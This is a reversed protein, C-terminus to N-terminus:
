DVVEIRRGTYVYTTRRIKFTEGKKLSEVDIVQENYFINGKTQSVIDLYNQNISGTLGCPMISVPVDLRDLLEIDKVASFNDAILLVGTAKVDKRLAYLIAELDNEPYDGGNGNQMATRISTSFESVFTTFYIGGTAGIVKENDNTEDGDNFATFSTFPLKESHENLWYSAAIIHNAMSGTVDMVVALNQHTPIKEFSKYVPTVIIDEASVKTSQTHDPSGDSEVDSLKHELVPPKGNKLFQGKLHPSYSVRWEFDVTDKVTKGDVTKATWIPMDAIASNISKEVSKGYPEKFTSITPRGKEDVVVTFKAWFDKRDKWVEAPLKFNTQIHELLAQDGGEFDAEEIENPKAISVVKSKLSTGVPDEDVLRAGMSPNEFYNSITEFERKRGEDTPLPRHVLIFGHFYADGDTHVSLGTQEIIEWEILPSEFLVPYLTKLQEFRERDLIKQDFNISRKYATYVYYVKTVALVNVKDRLDTTTIQPQAFNSSIYTIRDSQNVEVRDVRQRNQNIIHNINQAYVATVTLFICLLILKHM